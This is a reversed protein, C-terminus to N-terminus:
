IKLCAEVALEFLRERISHRDGWKRKDWTEGSVDDGGYLMQGIQVGRFKAVAFLASAEMDVTICGEERRLKIKGSTERYYADTTWTKGTVFPIGNKKLTNKIATVVRRSPAVERGPRLYHYSTGEDRIASIPVVVHGFTINRDLVGAGGVVVIKKVGLVILEELIAACLAAGVPAQMVVLKKRGRKVEYVPLLGMESELHILKKHKGRVKKIVEKFFCLVGYKPLRRRGAIIHRPELVSKRNPDFQLIPYKNKM